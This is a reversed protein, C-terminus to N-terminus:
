RGHFVQDDRILLIISANEEQTAYVVKETQRNPLVSRPISFHIRKAKIKGGQKMLGSAANAGV